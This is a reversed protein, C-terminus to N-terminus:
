AKLFSGASMRRAKTKSCIGKNIAGTGDHDPDSNIGHSPIKTGQHSHRGAQSKQAAM